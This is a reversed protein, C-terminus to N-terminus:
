PSESSSSSSSSSSQNPDVEKFYDARLSQQPFKYETVEKGFWNLRAARVYASGKQVMGYEINDIRSDYFYRGHRSLFAYEQTNYSRNLPQVGYQTPDNQYLEIELAPQGDHIVTSVTNAFLDIEVGINDQVEYVQDDSLQSSKLFQLRNAPTDEVYITTTGAAVNALLPSKYNNIDIHINRNLLSYIADAYLHLIQMGEETEINKGYVMISVRYEESLGGHLYIWENSLSLPEVTIAMEETPIVERDGWFIRDSYLPAHGITKQIFAHNSVYWGGSPDIIPSTLTIYHTNIVRDIVAYEYKQYHPSSEVNYDYDILVIQQGDTFHFSDEISVLIDGTLANSTVNSKSVLNKDILDILGSVVPVVGSM